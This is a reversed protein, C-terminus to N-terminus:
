GRGDSCQSALCAAVKEGNEGGRGGNNCETPVQRISSLTTRIVGVVRVVLKRTILFLLLIWLVVPWTPPPPSAPSPPSRLTCSGAIAEWVTPLRQTHPLVARLVNTYNTLIVRCMKIKSTIVEEVTQSTIAANHTLGTTSVNLTKLAATTSLMVFTSTTYWIDWQCSRVCTHVYARIYMHVTNTTLTISQSTLVHTTHAEAHLIELGTCEFM